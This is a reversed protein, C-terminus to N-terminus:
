YRNYCKDVDLCAIFVIGIPKQTYSQMAKSTSRVAAVQLQCWGLHAHSLLGGGASLVPDCFVPDKAPM